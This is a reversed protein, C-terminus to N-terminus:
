KHVARIQHETLWGPRHVQWLVLDTWAQNPQLSLLGGKAGFDVRLELFFLWLCCWGCGLKLMDYYRRTSSLLRRKNNSLLNKRKM